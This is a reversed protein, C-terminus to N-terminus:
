AAAVINSARRCCADRRFRTLMEIKGRVSAEWCELAIISQAQVQSSGLKSQQSYFMNKFEWESARSALVPLLSSATAAPLVCVRPCATKAIFGFSLAGGNSGGGAGESGKVLTTSAMLSRISSALKSQLLLPKLKCAM